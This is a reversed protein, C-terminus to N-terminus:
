QRSLNNENHYAFDVRRFLSVQIVPQPTGSGYQSPTM